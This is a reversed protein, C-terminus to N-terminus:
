LPLSRYVSWIVMAICICVAGAGVSLVISCCNNDGIHFLPGRNARDQCLLLGTLGIVCILNTSVVTGIILITQNDWKTSRNSELSFFKEVFNRIISTYSEKVTSSNQNLVYLLTIANIIVLLFLIGFLLFNIIKQQRRVREIQEANRYWGLFGVAALLGGVVITVIM